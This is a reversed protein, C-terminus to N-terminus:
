SNPLVSVLNFEPNTDRLYRQSSCSPFLKSFLVAVCSLSETKLSSSSQHVQQSRLVSSSKKNQSVLPLVVVEYSNQVAGFMPLIKNFYNLSNLMHKCLMHLM